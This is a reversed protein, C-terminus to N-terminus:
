SELLSQAWYSDGNPHIGPVIAYVSSGIHTIWENLRDIEDLREQIPVFQTLPDRQFCIFILGSNSSDARAPDPPLDYNYPRRLIQQEPHEAPAKSRAVHSMPDIAPLGFEDTASLDAESFEDGGSLPAGTDLARGVAVERSTRDLKEWTDLHMAVRRVIMSTGGNLWTPANGDQSRTNDIWVHADLEAPTRPNITGDKQGFLNRPTEREGLVGRAHMFGQQFWAAKAYDIGARLMHRTAHAVTIPDDGCIQLVIDTESWQPDLEDRKFAPLPELWAPKKDTLGAKKFFSPGLGCTITLNAPLRTMEPELSGPPTRGECLDKADETWLKLLRRMDARDTGPLFNFAAMTLSAQHLTAIGAQHLGTFEITQTGLNEKADSGPNTAPIHAAAASNSSSLGSYGALVAGSVGLGAGSIFGRRSFGSAKSLEDELSSDQSGM